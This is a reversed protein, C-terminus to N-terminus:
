RRLFNVILYTNPLHKLLVSRGAFGKYMQSQPICLYTPLHKHCCGKPHIKKSTTSYFM